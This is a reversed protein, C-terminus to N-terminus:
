ETYSEDIWSLEEALHRVSVEEGKSIEKKIKSLIKLAIKELTNRSTTVPIQTCFSGDDVAEWNWDPHDTGTGKQSVYSKKDVYFRLLPVDDEEGTYDGSLGEGIYSLTVKIDGKAVEVDVFRNIAKHYKECKDM